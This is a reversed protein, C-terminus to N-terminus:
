YDMRLRFVYKDNPRKTMPQSFKAKGVVNLNSDHLYITSIYVFEEAKDNLNYNPALKRFDPNSSSNILGVEAPVSIELSHLNREGKFSLDVHHKGFGYLHPSKIIILGENYYVDGVINNKDIKSECNARYLGGRKDDKLIIECDIGRFLKSKIEISGPSLRDGYYLQPITFIVILNSALDIGDITYNPDHAKHANLDAPATFGVSDPFHTAGMPIDLGSFAGQTGIQAGMRQAFSEALRYAEDLFMFKSDNETSVDAIHQLNILSRDPRSYRTISGTLINWDPDFRGNDCPLIVCNRKENGLDIPFPQQRHTWDTLGTDISSTFDLVAGVNNSFYYSQSLMHLYPYSNQAYDLLFSQVDINQMGGIIAHNPNFPTTFEVTPSYDPYVVTDNARNYRSGMEISYFDTYTKSNADPWRPQIGVMAHGDDWKGKVIYFNNKQSHANWLVPVYFKIGRNRIDEASGTYGTLSGSYIDQLNRKRDWIRIEHLDANLGYRLYNWQGGLATDASGSYMGKAFGQAETTYNGAFFRKSDDLSGTYYGGLFLSAEYDPWKWTYDDGSQTLFNFEGSKVNDILFDGRIHSLSGSQARIACHYWHDPKMINDDSLYINTGARNENLVSLDIDVPPYNSGAYKQGLQLLLRYYKPNGFRDSESGSVLSVAYNEPLHIVTGANVNKRPKIYFEITFDSDAISYKNGENAYVIAPVSSTVPDEAKSDTAPAWSRVGRLPESGTTFFNICHYNKYHLGANPYEVNYYPKLNREILNLARTGSSFTNNGPLLRRIELKAANRAHMPMNTYGAQFYPTDGGGAFDSGPKSFEPHTEAVTPGIGDLMMAIEAEFSYTGGYLAAYDQLPQRDSSGQRWWGQEYIERRTNEFNNEAFTQISDPDNFGVRNDINDKQTHSKNVIVSLAGTVQSELKDWSDRSSSSFFRNPKLKISNVNFFGRNINFLSM